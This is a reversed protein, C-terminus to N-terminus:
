RFYVLSIRVGLEREDKSGSTTKAPVFTRDVSVTLIFDQGEGLWEKRVAYQREFDGSGPAFSELVRGEIGITIKQGPPAASDVSGRVVLVADRHPNDIVVRAEKATWRWSRTPDAAATELDYWGELFVILPSEPSPLVKLNRNHVILRPRGEGGALSALGVNMELTEAGRFAPNFEDIFRPIYVRRTFVYEKGPEWKSTPVPPRFEDQFLLRGRRLFKSVVANDEALPAFSGGTRFRYTIDTFLNDTLVRSSFTVSLEIGRVGIQERCPWSLFTALVSLVALARQKTMALRDAREKRYRRFRNNYLSQVALDFGRKVGTWRQM